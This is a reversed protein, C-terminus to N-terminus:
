MFVAVFSDHAELHDLNDFFSLLLLGISGVVSFIFSLYTCAQCGHAKRQLFQYFSFNLFIM